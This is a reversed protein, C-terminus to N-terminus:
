RTPRPTLSVEVPPEAESWAWRGPQVGNGMAGPQVDHGDGLSCMMGMVWAARQGDGLSYGMVWRGPQVNVMARAAGWQGDGLSYGM